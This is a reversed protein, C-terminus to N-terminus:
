LRRLTGVESARDGTRFALTVEDPPDLPFDFVSVAFVARGGGGGSARWALLRGGARLEARPARYDLTLVAKGARHLLTVVAQGDGVSVSVASRWGTTGDAFVLDRPRGYLAFGRSTDDDVGFM